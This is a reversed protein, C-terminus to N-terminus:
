RISYLRAGTSVVRRSFRISGNQDRHHIRSRIRKAKASACSTAREKPLGMEVLVNEAIQDKPFKARNYRRFFEGMLRPKLVAEQRAQHDDGESTPAVVRRGLSTLIIENAAYGGESLGYAISAGCLNRWGGSTPSLDLALAVNHPAAGKGAFNEWIAEAIRLAERLPVNPFDTQSIIVRKGDGPM